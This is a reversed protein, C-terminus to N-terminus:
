YRVGPVVGREAARCELCVQSPLIYGCLTFLDLPQGCMTCLENELLCSRCLGDVLEEVAPQQCQRCKESSM